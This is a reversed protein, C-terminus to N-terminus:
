VRTRSHHAGDEVATALITRLLRYSKAVTVAGTLKVSAAPFAM